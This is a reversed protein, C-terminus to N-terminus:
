KHVHALLVNSLWARKRTISVTNEYAFEYTNKNAHYIIALKYFQFPQMVRVTHYTRLLKIYTFNM